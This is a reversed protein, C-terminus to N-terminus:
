LRICAMIKLINKWFFEWTELLINTKLEEAWRIIQVKIAEDETYWSLLIKYLKSTLKTKEELLVKELESNAKKFGYSRKDKNFLTKIQNYRQWGLKVM